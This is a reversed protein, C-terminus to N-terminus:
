DCVHGDLVAQVFPAVDAEDILCDATFDGRPILAPPAAAGELYATVFLAVDAADVACSNDMDGSLIAPATVPVLNVDLGVPAGAVNVVVDQTVYGTKSVRVTYAANPPVIYTWRGFPLFTTRPLEDTDFSYNLLTVQAEIPVCQSRVHVDIRAQGLRDYLYKWGERNEAVIGAVTSFAPQFSTGVEVIFPYTGKHAYYWSTDDGNVAGIAIPSNVAYTVGNVPQIALAMGRMMADIVPHEPMRNDPNGDNCAYPYDIFRGYSHYSVAIAFHFADALAEMAQTELESGASSGRYADSCSSGSSGGTGSRECAATGSGWHYPYNRNIDVGNNETTCGPQVNKRHNTDGAFVRASGDPNVMPVCITKYNQVWEVIQADNATYGDTLYNIADVIIHPTAVERAHHLGNLLVVPEDEEAGPNDSIEIGLIQRGQLTTGVVFSRAIAPHDAVTQAIIAAIESVDYYQPDISGRPSAEDAPDTWMQDLTFGNSELLTQQDDSDIEIVFQRNEFDVGCRDLGFGQDGLWVRWTRVAEVDSMGLTAADTPLNALMSRPTADEARVSNSYSM